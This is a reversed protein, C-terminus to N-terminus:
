RVVSVDGTEMMRTISDHDDIVTDFIVFGNGQRAVFFDVNVSKGAPDRFDACVIFQDGISLILPHPKAPFLSQIKGIKRNFFYFKGDILQQAISQQMTAQLLIKESTTVKARTDAVSSFLVVVAIGALIFRQM